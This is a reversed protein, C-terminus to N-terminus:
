SNTTADADRRLAGPSVGAAGLRRARGHRARRSPAADFAADVAAHRPISRPISRPVPTEGTIWLRSAPAVSSARRNAPRRGIEDFVADSTGIAAAQPTASRAPGTWASLMATLDEFDVSSGIPDVLNGLGAGVTQNWNALLLTLDSFDVAGDGTLDGRLGVLPPRVDITVRAVNSRLVGDSAVYTFSDTGVFDVEPVYAFTGNPNLTLSGHSPGGLLIAGLRDGDVDVDNGLLGVSPDRAATLRADMSMDSSGPRWQHVEVALVNEGEVLLSADITYVHFNREAERRTKENALTDFAAGDALNDRVIEVGNLYVAAGDDRILHLQLADIGAVDEVEFARRFYTTIHKNEADGGFSVTTAEDGDGWGLQSRGERWGDDSFQPDHWATGQNSGDDLFRWVDGSVVLREIGVELIEGPVTEFADDIAQPADNTNIVSITVTATSSLLSGNAIQYAFTDSGFFNPDPTYTFAGDPSVVFTGHQPNTLPLAALPESSDLHSLLGSEPAIILQTDEIASYIADIAVPVTPDIAVQFSGLLQGAVPNGSIDTVQNPEIRIEYSGSDIANWFGGPPTFTYNVTLARGSAAGRPLNATAWESYGDPGLVRVDLDDISAVDIAVDDTFAIAFRGNTAGGVTVNDTSYLTAEPATSDSVGGLLSLSVDSHNGSLRLFRAEGPTGAATLEALGASSDSSSMALDNEDLLTLSIEGSADSTQASATLTGEWGADFSILVDGLTLDISSLVGGGVSIGDLGSSARFVRGGRFFELVLDNRLGLEAFNFGSAIAGPDLIVNSFRDNEVIVPNDAPNSQGIGVGERGDIFIAPQTGTIRYVGAPMLGSGPTEFLSYFGSADTRVTRSFTLPGDTKEITITVGDIPLDPGDLEPVLNDNFDIFALGAIMVPAGVRISVTAINSRAEVDDSVRYTFRDGGAFGDGPTYTISGDDNVEASGVRPPRVVVVSSPDLVGDLDRDNELVDIRVPVDVDTTALDDEALPSTDIIVTINVTANSSAGASDVARYSFSDSGTFGDNATYVFSGDSALQLTGNSPSTLRFAALPDGDVDVDNALVGEAADFAVSTGSLAVYSDPRAVPPDNVSAITLTVTAPPSEDQGDSLRYTFQDIGHVDRNPRYSFSGDSELTLTGREPESLLEITLPDGDDDRDNSLLGADAAVTLTTDEDLNYADDEAVPVSNPPRVIFTVTATNSELEGNTVRYTFTDTGIFGPAPIYRFSGSEPVSLNIEGVLTSDDVFSRTLPLGQREVDNAMFGNDLVILDTDQEVEYVDDFAAPTITVFSVLSTATVSEDTGDSATIRLMRPTPNPAVATNRYRLTRLVQQYDEVSATGILSLLGIDSLFIAVIGMNGVNISLLERNVDRHNAIEVRVFVLEASDDDTLTLNAGVVSVFGGGQVFTAAFDIGAQDDGNLDLMPPQNVPTLFYAFELGTVNESAVVTVDFRSEVPASATWGDQLEARVVYPGPELRSFSWDGQADTLTSPEGDDLQGNSDLDLFVLWDSLGEDEADDLVRGSIGGTLASLDREYFYLTPNSGEALTFYNGAADFSIAEGKREVIYPLTALDDSVLADSLSEGPDRAYFFIEGYRKVIIELGSESVDGGVAGFLGGGEPADGWAMEGMFQLTISQDGAAPASAQYIRNREDRKTILVLDGSLPDVLLTEGDHAEDPYTLTLIDVGDLVASQDGGTADIFPERVRYVEITNRAKGLHAANNGTDSVYLYSVGPEPGPGIAIDEWDLAGNNCPFDDCDGALVGELTFRGLDDGQSNIAFLRNRDGSDNHTWLVGDSQRSAVIGSAEIISDSEIKGAVVGDLFSPVVALLRRHELTEIGCRRTTPRTRSVKRNHGKRIHSPSVTASRKTPRTM